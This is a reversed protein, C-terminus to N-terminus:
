SRQLILQNDFFINNDLLAPVIPKGGLKIKKKEKEIKPIDIQNFNYNKSIRIKTVKLKSKQGVVM